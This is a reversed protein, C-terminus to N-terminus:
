RKGEPTLARLAVDLRVHWEHHVQVFDRDARPDCLVAAGCLLCCTMGVRAGETNFAAYPSWHTGQLGATSSTM